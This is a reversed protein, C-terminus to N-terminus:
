VSDFCDILFSKVIFSGKCEVFTCAAVSHRCQWILVSIDSIHTVPTYLILRISFFVFLCIGCKFDIAFKNM